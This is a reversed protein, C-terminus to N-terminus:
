SNAERQPLYYRHSALGSGEPIFGVIRGRLRRSNRDAHETTYPWTSNTIRGIVDRPGIAAYYEKMSVEHM